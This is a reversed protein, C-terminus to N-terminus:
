GLRRNGFRRGLLLLGGLLLLLSGPEPVANFTGVGVFGAPTATNSKWASPLVGTVSASDFDGDLLGPFSVNDILLVAQEASGASQNLVFRLDLETLDADSTDFFDGTLLTAAFREFDSMIGSSELTAILTNGLFVDLVGTATAFLYDFSFDFTSDIPETVTQSLEVPSGTILTAVSNALAATPTSPDDLISSLSFIEGVVQNFGTLNFSSEVLPPLDAIDFREKLGLVPGLEGLDFSAGLANIAFSAKLVDLVFEGDIGLRTTNSLTTNLSYTPTVEVSQNTDLSIMPIDSFAASFSSVKIAVGQVWVPESFALDVMLEPQLKFDQIIEVIPGFEIDLLDYSVDVIGASIGAGLPPITGGSAVTAIGDLDLKLDLLDASGNTALPDATGASDTTLDPIHVTVNGVETGLPGATVSIPSGFNFAEPGLNDLGLLTIKGNNNDNLAVLELVAPKLPNGPLSDDFFGITTSDQTCNGTVCAEADIDAKVGFVFEAKASLTPFQTQFATSDLLSSSGLLSFPQLAVVQEPATLSADFDVNADVSGADAQVSFQLGVKGETSVDVEAGTTTDLTVSPIAPTYIAPIAPSYVAPIAPSYVAPTTICKGFVCVKKKKVLLKRPVAPTILKRPVAPTILIPAVGPTTVEGGVFGGLQAPPTQWSSGVFLTEDLIGASGTEWMSQATSDFELLIASAFPSACALLATIFLKAPLLRKAAADLQPARPAHPLTSQAQAM